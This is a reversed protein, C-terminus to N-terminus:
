LKMQRKGKHGMVKNFDGTDIYEDIIEISKLTRDSCNNKVFSIFLDKDALLSEVTRIYEKMVWLNHVSISVGIKSGDGYLNQAELRRCVPCSCPLTKLRGNNKNTLFHVHMKPNFPLIYKRYQAGIIYSASDFTVNEFLKSTYIIAPIVDYGTGLLIHVRKPQEKEHIFTSLLAVQIPDSPPKISLSFGDFECEKTTKYWLELEDRSSGQLVKLLQLHNSARDTYMKEYYRASKVACKEFYVMDNLPGLTVPNIPPVDLTMGIDANKEMWRLVNIPELYSVQGTLLQFGGSNHALVNNCIFREYNPVSLDYVSIQKDESVVSVKKVKLYLIDNNYVNENIHTGKVYSEFIDRRTSNWVCSKLHRTYMRDRIESKRHVAVDKIPINQQHTKVYRSKKDLLINLKDINRKQLFRIEKAFKEISIYDQIYSNYFDKCQYTRNTVKDVYDRRKEFDYNFLIGFSLLLSQIDLHLQYSVTGWSVVEPTVCGDGSFYGKLFLGIQRKSLNFVFDPIKKTHAKGSFGLERMYSHLSKSNINADVGNKDYYVSGKFKEAIYDIIEKCGEDNACSFGVTWKDNITFHGDAIWLGFLILIEDSFEKNDEVSGIPLISPAIIYDSKKLESVKVPIIDYNDSLTYLSHDETIKINRGGGWTEIEYIKKNVKHKIVSGVSTFIVRNREDVTLVEIEKSSIDIIKRVKDEKSFKTFFEEITTRHIRNKDKYILQSDGTVSDGILTFGNNPIKHRERFDWEKIGTAATILLANHNVIGEPKWWRFNMGEFEREVLGTYVPTYTITM